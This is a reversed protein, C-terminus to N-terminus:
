MSRDCHHKRFDDLAEQASEFDFGIHGWECRWIHCSYTHSFEVM